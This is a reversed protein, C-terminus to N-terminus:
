IGGVTTQPITHELRPPEQLRLLRPLSLPLFCVTSPRPLSSPPPLSYQHLELNKSGRSRNPIHPRIKVSEGGWGWGGPQKVTLQTARAAPETAHMDSRPFQNQQM